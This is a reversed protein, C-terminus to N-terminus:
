VVSKRDGDIYNSQIGLQDGIKTAIKGGGHVLIKKTDIAAFKKLFSELAPANDIVNGGIKIVLLQEM